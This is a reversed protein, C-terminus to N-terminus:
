NLLIPQCSNEDDKNVSEIEGGTTQFYDRSGCSGHWRASKLQILIILLTAAINIKIQM